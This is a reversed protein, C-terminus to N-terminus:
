SRTDPKNTISSVIQRNCVGDVLGLLESLVNATDVPEAVLVNLQILKILRHFRLQLCGLLAKSLGFLGQLRLLLAVLVSETINLLDSSCM